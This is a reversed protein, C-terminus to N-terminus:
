IVLKNTKLQLTYTTGTEHKKTHTQVVNLAPARPLHVNTSHPIACLITNSGIHNDGKIKDCIIYFTEPILFSSM